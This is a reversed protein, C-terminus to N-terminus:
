RIEADFAAVVHRPLALGRWIMVDFRMTYHAYGPNVALWWNAAAVIRRRNRETITFDPANRRLKVEVFAITRGRRAVIDIEGVPTRVRRGIARFGKLSLFLVSATETLQGAREARRRAESM